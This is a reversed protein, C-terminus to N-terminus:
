TTSDTIASYPEFRGAIDDSMKTWADRVKTHLTSGSQHRFDPHEVKNRGVPTTTTVQAILTVSVFLALIAILYRM